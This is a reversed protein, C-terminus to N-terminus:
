GKEGNILEESDGTNRHTRDIKLDISACEKRLCCTTAVGPIRVDHWAASFNYRVIYFSKTDIGLFEIAALVATM